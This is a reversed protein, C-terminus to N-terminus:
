EGLFRRPRPSETQRQLGRGWPQDQRGLRVASGRIPIKSQIMGVDSTNCRDCRDHNVRLDTSDASGVM